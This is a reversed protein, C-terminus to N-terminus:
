FAPKIFQWKEEDWTIWDDKLLGGTDGSNPNLCWYTFSLEYTKLLQVFPAMWNTNPERLFGGWEGVLVPAIGQEHIFLWHDRWVDNMLTEYNMGPYFWKQQDNVDPGYDHPAYVLKNQKEGLDIPYEKAGAAQGGWWGDVGKHCQIGEVLILLNPNQAHIGKAAIEVFHKWNNPATSNDWIAPLQEHDDCAGHPENKV